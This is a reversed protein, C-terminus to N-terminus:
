PHARTKGYFRKSIAVVKPINWPSKVTWLNPFFVNTTWQTKNNELIIKLGQRKESKQGNRMGHHTRLMSHSKWFVGLKSIYKPKWRTISLYPLDLRTGFRTSSFGLTYKRTGDPTKFPSLFNVRRTIKYTTM